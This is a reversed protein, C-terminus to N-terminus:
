RMSRTVARTYGGIVFEQSKNTKYKLWADSRKGPEYISTKRKTIV